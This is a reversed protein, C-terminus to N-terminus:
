ESFYMWDSSDDLSDSSNNMENQQIIYERIFKRLNNNQQIFQHNGEIERLEMEAKLLGLQFQDKLTVESANLSSFVQNLPPAPRALLNAEQQLDLVQDKLIQNYYELQDNTLNEIQSDGQKHEIQLRLLEFFDGKKYAETIRKMIETKRLKEAENPEKDPHLAKVLETYIIRSTKSLNQAEEKLKQARENSKSQGTKSKQRSKREEQYAKERDAIKQEIEEQIKAMDEPNDLDALEDIEIDFMNEFFAKAFTQDIEDREEIIQAYTHKSHRDHIEILEELGYEDILHFTEEQIIEQIALKEILRFFNSQYAKDLARVFLARAAIMKDELPLIEQYFRDQYKQNHHRLEDVKKKLKEIRQTYKNFQNQLDSLKQNTTPSIIPIIEKKESM